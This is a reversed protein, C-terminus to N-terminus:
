ADSVAEKVKVKILKPERKLMKVKVKILKPERKLTEVKVKITDSSKTKEEM